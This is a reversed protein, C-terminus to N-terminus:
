EKGGRFRLLRDFNERLGQLLGGKMEGACVAWSPPEVSVNGYRYDNLDDATIKEPVHPHMLFWDHDVGLLVFASGGAETWDTLHKRQTASVAVPIDTTGRKPWAKVYKNEIIYGLGRWCGLVDPLGPRYVDQVKWAVGTGDAVNLTPKIWRSWFDKELM